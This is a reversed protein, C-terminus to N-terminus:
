RIGFNGGNSPQRHQIETASEPTLTCTAGQIPQDNNNLVLGSFSTPQSEDRRVGFIVFRAANTPNAPFSAEVRNNGSEPGLTFDVEAHGTDGTLLTVEAQGNVLGGGDTVSFTVPVGQVGNCADSVWVRLPEPAPGGAEGRQNNGSGINIQAPPAPTASACFITTGAISTSTVEVRNNGCGADFGLQWFAQVEGSEDTRTQLMMSGDAMGDATLRGNSRTVDFTM